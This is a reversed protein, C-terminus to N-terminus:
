EPRLKLCAAWEPYKGSALNPEDVETGGMFIDWCSEFTRQTPDCSSVSPKREVRSAANFAEPAWESQVELHAIFDVEVITRLVIQTYGEARLDAKLRCCGPAAFVFAVEL